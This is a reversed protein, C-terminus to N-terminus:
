AARPKHDTIENEDVEDVENLITVEEVNKGTFEHLKDLNIAYEIIFEPRFCVAIERNAREYASFAHTHANLLYAEKVQISPSASAQGGHRNIDFGVFVRYGEHWGLLLTIEGPKAEPVVGTIQVRYEDAARNKGGHTCNWIYVRINLFAKNEHRFLRLLFPHANEMIIAQWGSNEIAALIRDLLDSKRLPASM